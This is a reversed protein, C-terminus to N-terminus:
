RKIGTGEDASEDKQSEEKENRNDQQIQKVTHGYWIGLRYLALYTNM